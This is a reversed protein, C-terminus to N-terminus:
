YRQMNLSTHNLFYGNGYGDLRTKGPSLTLVYNQTENGIFRWLTVTNGDIRGSVADDPETKGYSTHWTGTFESGQQRLTVTGRFRDNFHTFAWVGSLDAAPKSQDEKTIPATTSGTAAPGRQMSLNTHDLFFGDGFGDLRNGDASLTLAFSQRSNGIFRWLTVNNGSIRGTVQDDPEVKGKSTHWTGSFTDGSQHIVVWGQFRDDACTFGWTGSLDTAQQACGLSASLIMVAVFSKFM